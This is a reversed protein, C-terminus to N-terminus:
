PGGEGFGLRERGGYRDMEVGEEAVGESWVSALNNEM